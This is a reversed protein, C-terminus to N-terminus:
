IPNGTPPGTPKTESKEVPKDVDKPKKSTKPATKMAIPEVEADAIDTIGKAAEAADRQTEENKLKFFDSRKALGDKISNYITMLDFLADNDAKDIDYGLKQEIMEQTVSYKDFAAVMKRVRDAIPETSKGTATLKCQKEAAEILDGPIVGLICSRLRRTSMNATHEYIDRPDKLHQIKGKGFREHKVTFTKQSRVNTELDYCYSQMVSEGPSQELERIGYDLNGFCQAAVEALRISPGTVTKGGRPYAYVAKSALTSRRCSKMLNSYVQNIDRPFRKAVAIQSQIESMQRTSEAEAMVNKSPVVQFEQSEINSDM